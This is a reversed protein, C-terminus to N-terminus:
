VSGKRIEFVVSNSNYGTETYFVTYEIPNGHTDVFGLDIPFDKLLVRKSNIYFKLKGDNERTPCAFFIRQNHTADIFKTCPITRYKDKYSDKIYFSTLEALANSNIDLPLDREAVEYLPFDGHPDKTYGIYFDGKSDELLRFRLGEYPSSDNMYLRTGKKLTDTKTYVTEGECSWAYLAEDNSGFSGWYRFYYGDGANNNIRNILSFNIPQEGLLIATLEEAEESTKIYNLDTLNQITQAALFNKLEKNSYLAQSETLGIDPFPIDLGTTNNEFDTIIDNVRKQAETITEQVVTSEDSMGSVETRSIEGTSSVSIGNDEAISNLVETTTFLSTVLKMVTDVLDPPVYEAIINYLTNSITKNYLIYDKLNRAIENPFVAYFLSNLLSNGTLILNGLMSTSGSLDLRADGISFCSLLNNKAQIGYNLIENLYDGSFVTLAFAYSSKLSSVAGMLDNLRKNKIKLGDDQKTYNEIYNRNDRSLYLSTIITNKGFDVNTTVTDVLYYGCDSAQEDQVELKVMDLPAVKKMYIGPILVEGGMSSMLLLSNINNFYAQKYAKHVNDSQIENMSVSSGVGLEETAKTAAIKPSNDAVKSETQGTNSDQINVIRNNGMFMNYGTKYSKLQFRNVYMYQNSKSPPKPVLTFDVGKEVTKKFDKLHFKGYKDFAFLPCSGELNMHLLVNLLFYYGTKNDRMWKVQNEQVNSIDTEMDGNFYDKIIQKAVMLSNGEYTKSEQNIMFSYNYMFGGFEINWGKDMSSPKIKSTVITVPFTDAEDQTKGFTIKVKNNQKISNMVTSNFTRFSMIVSPLSVGTSEIIKLGFVDSPALFGKLSKDPIELDIYYFDGVKM